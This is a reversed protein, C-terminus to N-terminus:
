KGWEQFISLIQNELDDLKLIYISDNRSSQNDRKIEINRKLCSYEVLFLYDSDGEIVLEEVGTKKIDDIILDIADRFLIINKITRKLYNNSRSKIVEIGSPTLLYRLSRNTLKKAKVLGKNILRKIIINTMGLSIGAIKAIDRQKITEQGEQIAELIKLDQKLENM